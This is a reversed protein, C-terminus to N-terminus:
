RPGAARWSLRELGAKAEQTLRAEPMGGALTQLVQRAEPTAVTELVTLARLLRLKEPSAAWDLKALLQEAADDPM